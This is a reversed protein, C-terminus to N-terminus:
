TSTLMESILEKKSKKKLNINGKKPRRQSIASAVKKEEGNKGRSIEENQPTEIAM